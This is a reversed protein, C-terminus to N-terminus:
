LIRKIKTLRYNLKGPLYKYMMLKLKNYKTRPNFTLETNAMGIETSLNNYENSFPHICNTEWPRGVVWSTLHIISADNKAHLYEDQSYYNKLNYVDIFKRYDLFLIPSMVNYHLPLMQIYGKCVMNLVTQDHFKMKGQANEIYDLAKKTFSEERCKTLNWLVVGSNIHFDGDNNTQNLDIISRVAGIYNNKLDIEFLSNLEKNVLVDTDLYLVKEINQPILDPIFLRAYVALSLRDVNVDRQLLKDLNNLNYIYIDARNGFRFMLENVSDESINNSLIHVSVVEKHKKIISLIAVALKDVYNEDSALVFNMKKGEM